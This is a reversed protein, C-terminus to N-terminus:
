MATSMPWMHCGESPLGSPIHAGMLLFAQISPPERGVSPMALFPLGICYPRIVVITPETRAIMPRPNFDAVEPASSIRGVNFAAFGANGSPKSRINVAIHFSLEAPVAM